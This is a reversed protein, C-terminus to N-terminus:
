PPPISAGQGYRRAPESLEKSYRCGLLTMNSWVSALKIATAESEGFQKAREYVAKRRQFMVSTENPQREM